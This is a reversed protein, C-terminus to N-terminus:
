ALTANSSYGEPATATLCGAAPRSRGLSSGSDIADPQISSFHGASGAGAVDDSSAAALKFHGRLRGAAGRSRVGGCAQM